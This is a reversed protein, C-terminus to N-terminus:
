VAEEFGFFARALVGPHTRTRLHRPLQPAAVRRLGWGGKVHSAGGYAVNATRCRPTRLKAGVPALTGGCRWRSRSPQRHTM